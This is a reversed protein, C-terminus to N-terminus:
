PFVAREMSIATAFFHMDLEVSGTTGFYRIRHFLFADFHTAKPVKRFCVIDIKKTVLPNSIANNSM